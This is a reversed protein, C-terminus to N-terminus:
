LISEMFVAEKSIFHDVSSVRCYFILVCYGQFFGLLDHKLELPSLESDVYDLQNTQDRPYMKPVVSQAFQLCGLLNIGKCNAILGSQIKTTQNKKLSPSM